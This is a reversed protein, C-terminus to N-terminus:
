RATKPLRKTLAAENAVHPRALALLQRFHIGAWIMFPVVQTDVYMALNTTLALAYRTGETYARPDIQTAYGYEIALCVDLVQWILVLGYAVGLRRFKQQWTAAPTALMLALLLITNAQIWEAAISPPQSPVTFGRPWFQITTGTSWVHTPRDVVSVVLEACVSLMSTYWPGVVLWLAFLGVFWALLRGLFRLPKVGRFM